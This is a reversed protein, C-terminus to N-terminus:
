LALCPVNKLLLVLGLSLFFYSVFEKRHEHSICTIFLIEGKFTGKNYMYNYADIFITLM